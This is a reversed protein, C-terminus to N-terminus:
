CLPCLPIVSSILGKSHKTGPMVHVILEFLTEEATGRHGRHKLSQNM